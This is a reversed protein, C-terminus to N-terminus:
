RTRARSLSALTRESVRLRAQARRIAALTREAEPLRGAEMLEEFAEQLRRVTAEEAAREGRGYLM